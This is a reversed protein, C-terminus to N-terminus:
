YCCSKNSTDRVNRIDISLEENDQSIMERRHKIGLKSIYIFAERVGEGTKGSAEFVKIENDKEFKRLMEHTIMRGELDSKNAILIIPTNRPAKDKVDDIWVTLHEFSSLQTLDCVLIIGNIKRYYNFFLSRCRNHGFTDIIQIDYNKGLLYEEKHFIESNITPQNLISEDLFQYMLTSKGVYSDGITILKIFNSFCDSDHFLSQSDKEFLM